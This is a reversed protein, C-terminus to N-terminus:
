IDYGRDNLGDRTFRKLAESDTIGRAECFEDFAQKLDEPFYTYKQNRGM